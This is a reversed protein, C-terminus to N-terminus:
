QRPTVLHWIPLESPTDYLALSWASRRDSSVRHWVGLLSAIKNADMEPGDLPMPGDSSLTATLSIISISDIHGSKISVINSEDNETVTGHSITEQSPNVVM